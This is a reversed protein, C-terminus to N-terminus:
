QAGRAIVADRLRPRSEIWDLVDGLRWRVARSSLYIRQPFSPDYYSSKPNLKDYISTNGLQTLEQLQQRKILAERLQEAM